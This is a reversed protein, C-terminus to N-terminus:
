CVPFKEDVVSIFNQPIKCGLISDANRVLLLSKFANVANYNLAWHM